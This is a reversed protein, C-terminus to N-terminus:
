AESWLGPIRRYHFAAFVLSIAGLVHWIAHGQVVHNEPDCFVGTVDAASFGAALTLTALSAFFWRRGAPPANRQRLETAVIGLILVFVIGQIPFPTFRLAVTLATLALVSGAYVPWFRRRSLAGSRVLNLGLLLNTFVYMGFFDLVQLIGSFSMHYVLSSIGVVIEAAGFIRLTRDRQRAGLWLLALGAFVYALNSWTNAPEVVVSCLQAECWRVNPLWLSSFPEWPCGAELPVIPHAL